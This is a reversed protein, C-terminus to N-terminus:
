SASPPQATEFGAEIGRLADPPCDSSRLRRLEEELRGELSALRKLWPQTDTLASADRVAHQVVPFALLTCALRRASEAISERPDDGYTDLHARAAKGNCRRLIGLLRDSRFESELDRCLEEVSHSRRPEVGRLFLAAKCLLEGASASSVAVRSEFGWRSEPPMHWYDALGSIASLMANRAEFLRDWAAPLNMEKREPSPLPPGHLCRGVSAIAHSVGCVNRQRVAREREIPVWDVPRDELTTPLGSFSPAVGEFLVAIDWDSDPGDDGRARSGFLIVSIVEPRDEAWRTVRERFEEPVTRLSTAVPM